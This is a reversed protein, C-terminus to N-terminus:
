QSLRGPAFYHAWTAQYMFIALVVAIVIGSVIMVRSLWSPTDSRNQIYATAAAWVLPVVAFLIGAHFVFKTVDPLERELVNRSLGSYTGAALIGAFVVALQILAFIVIPKANPNSM